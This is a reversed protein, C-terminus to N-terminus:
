KVEVITSYDATIVEDICRKAVDPDIGYDILEKDLCGKGIETPGYFLDGPYMIRLSEKMYHKQLETDGDEHVHVRIVDIATMLIKKKLM